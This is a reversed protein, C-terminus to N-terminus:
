TIGAVLGREWGQSWEGGVFKATRDEELGLSFVKMKGLGKGDM